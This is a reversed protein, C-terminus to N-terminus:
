KKDLISPFDNRLVAEVKNIIEVPALMRGKGKKGGALDGTEPEFTYYGRNNLDRVNRVTASNNWMNEHMAPVIFVPGTFDLVLATLLNDAIGHSIKAITNATAPAIVLYDAWASLTTHDDNQKDDWLGTYVHRSTITKFTLPTIFRCADSTMVTIVESSSKRILSALYASKYSAIGGCVGLIIKAM